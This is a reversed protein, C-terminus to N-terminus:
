MLNFLRILEMVVTAKIYSGILVIVFSIFIDNLVSNILRKFDLRECNSCSYILYMSLQIACASILFTALLDMLVQPLLTILIGIIGKMQYTCVFLACSFGIQLGKTFTIFSVIPIGIISTGLFFVFLIFLIGLFFQDVFYAYKDVNENVTTLYASLNATDKVDIYNSLFIGMCFGVIVLISIFLYVQKYKHLLGYYRQHGKM